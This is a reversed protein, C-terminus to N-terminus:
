SRVTVFCSACDLVSFHLQSLFLFTVFRKLDAVEEAKLEALKREMEEEEDEEEEEGEKLSEKKENIDDEDVEEDSSLSSFLFPIKFCAPFFSGFLVEAIWLAWKMTDDLQKAESRM